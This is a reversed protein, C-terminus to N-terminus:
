IMWELLSKRRTSLIWIAMFIQRTGIDSHGLWEQIDKLQYGAGLLISATTHRLDHYRIHPLNNKELTKSFKRTVYDPAFRRGDPWTFV